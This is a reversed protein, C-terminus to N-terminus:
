KQEYFYISSLRYNEQSICILTTINAFHMAFRMAFTCVNVLM